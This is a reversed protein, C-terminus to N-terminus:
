PASLEPELTPTVLNPMANTDYTPVAIVGFQSTPLLRLRATGVVRKMPIPGLVRSDQSADHNRNDGVVFVEGSGIKTELDGELAINGTYPENLIFGNPEQDNFIRIVGGRVVVREGPLGIVRKIYYIDAETTPPKFIVVQGRELNLKDSTGTLKHWSTELKSVILYDSNQFTPQMSLGEVYWAQFVFNHVIFVLLGPILIWSIFFGLVRRWIPQNGDYQDPPASPPGSQPPPATSTASPVLQAPRSLTSVPQPTQGPSPTVPPQIPQEPPM